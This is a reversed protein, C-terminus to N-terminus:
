HKGKKYAWIALVIVGGIVVMPLVKGLISDAGLQATSLADSATKGAANVASASGALATGVIGNNNNLSQTVINENSGILKNFTANAGALVNNSFDVLKNVFNAVEIPFNDTIAYSGGSGIAVSQNDAGVRQDTTSTNAQSESNSPSTSMSM